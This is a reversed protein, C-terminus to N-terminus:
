WGSSWCRARALRRSGASLSVSVIAPLLQPTIGIAIALSFLLADLVPRSFAVNIVFISVTLVGAVRVLLTSFDRLGAQFATEAQREGLGVAIKGFATASGTAVVVGRGSGQHVVTGMFACSPLDVASDTPRQRRGVEGGADVRGHAGGRRVRAADGGATPRRGARTGSGLAVIDGPVLDRVDVRRETGDRWCWRRTASTPTCRPSPGSPATSTSSALGSASCRRDRRHDGGDTPDGTPRLCRGRGLLLILLPNRLQRVLVGLATVRHTLLVNAGFTRLRDAADASSLGESGTGLRELVAEAPLRSASAADLPAESASPAHAAKM